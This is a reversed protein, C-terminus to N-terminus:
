DAVGVNSAGIVNSSLANGGLATNNNGTSNVVGALNGIFTNTTSSEAIIRCNSVSINCLSGSMSTTPEAASAKIARSLFAVRKDSSQAEGSLFYDVTRGYLASLKDLELADVKRIGAEFHGCLARAIAHVYAAVLNQRHWRHRFCDCNQLSRSFDM